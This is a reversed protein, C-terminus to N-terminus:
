FNGQFGNLLPGLFSAPLQAYLQKSLWAQGVNSLEYTVYSYLTQRQDPNLTSVPGVGNAVTQDEKTYVLQWTMGCLPYQNGANTINDHNVSNNNAWNNTGNLGVANAVSGTPLATTVKCNAGNGSQSVQYGSGDGAPLSPVAITDGNPNESADVADSLDLYGVGGSINQLLGFLAPGGSNPVFATGATNLHGAFNLTSCTGDAANATPENAPTGTALNPYGPWSANSGPWAQYLNWTEPPNATTGPSGSATGPCPAGAPAEPGTNRAADTNILYNQLINTTGSNDARVIRTLPLNCTALGDDAPSESALGYTGVSGALSSLQNWNTVQGGMIESIQQGTFQLGSASTPCGAVIPPSATCTSPSAPSWMAGTVNASTCGAATTFNIVIDVAAAAVPFSM